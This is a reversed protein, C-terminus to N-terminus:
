QKTFSGIQTSNLGRSAGYQIAMTCQHTTKAYDLINARFFVTKLRDCQQAYLTFETLPLDWWKNRLNEDPHSFDLKHSFRSM